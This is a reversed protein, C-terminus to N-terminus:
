LREVDVDLDLDDDEDDIAVDESFVITPLVIREADFAITGISTRHTPRSLELRLEGSQRSLLLVWYEEALAENEETTEFLALQRGGAVPFAIGKRYKTRPAADRLGTHIDGTAVTVAVAHDPSVVFPLGLVDVAKWSELALIERLARITRAWALVGPLISPDWPTCTRREAEGAEAAQQLKATTLQLARLRVDPDDDDGPLPSLETVSM